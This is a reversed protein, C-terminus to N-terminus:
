TICLTHICFTIPQIHPNQTEWRRHPNEEPETPFVETQRCSQFYLALPQSRTMTMSTQHSTLHASNSGYSLIKRKSPPLVFRISLAGVLLLSCQYYKGSPTVRTFHWNIGGESLIPFYMVLHNFSVFTCLYVNLICYRTQNTCSQM